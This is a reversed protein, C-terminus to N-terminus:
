NSERDNFTGKQGELNSPNLCLLIDDGSYNDDLSGDFIGIPVLGSLYSDWLVDVIRFTVGPCLVESGISFILHSFALGQLHAFIMPEYQQGVVAAVRSALHAEGPHNLMRKEVARFENDYREISSGTGQARIRGFALGLEEIYESLNAVENPQDSNWKQLITLYSHANLIRSTWPRLQDYTYRRELPVQGGSFLKGSEVIDQINM